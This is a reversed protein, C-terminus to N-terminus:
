RQSSLISTKQEFYKGESDERFLNEPPDGSLTGASTSYGTSHRTLLAMAANNNLKQRLDLEMQLLDIESRLIVINKHVDDQATIAMDVNPSRAGARLTRTLYLSKEM